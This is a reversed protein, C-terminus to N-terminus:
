KKYLYRRVFENLRWLNESDIGESQQLEIIGRWAISQIKILGIEENIYLYVEEDISAIEDIKYKSILYQKEGNMFTASQVLSTKFRRSESTYTHETKGLIPLEVTKTFSGRSSKLGYTYIFLSDKHSKRENIKEYKEFQTPKRFSYFIDNEKSDCSLISCLCTLYFLNKWRM